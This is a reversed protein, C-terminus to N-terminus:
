GSMGIWENKDSTDAGRMWENMDLRNVEKGRKESEGIQEITHADLV